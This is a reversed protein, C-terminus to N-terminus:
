SRSRARTRRSRGRGPRARAREDVGDLGRAVPGRQGAGTAPPPRPAPRAPGRRRRQAHAQQGADRQGDRDDRQRHHRRELEVVPLPERQLEGRRDHEPAAPGEVARRPRVQPVARRRHVGQDREAREGRPAPRDDRQEQEVRALGPHRHREVEDGIAVRARALDVELDRRRDRDEDQGPAVELRARLPTRAGRQPRQQLEARLVDRHEVLAPRSRRTGTSCSATPSRKTTRGPSFIAVSPTTSSPREATSM